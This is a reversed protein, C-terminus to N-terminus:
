GSGKGLQIIQNTTLKLEKFTEYPIAENGMFEQKDYGLRGVL